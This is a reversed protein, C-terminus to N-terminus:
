VDYNYSTWDVSYYSTRKTVNNSGTGYRAELYCEGIYNSTHQAAIDSIMESLSYNPLTSFTHNGINSNAVMGGSSRNSTGNFTFATYTFNYTIHAGHVATGLASTVNYYYLDEDYKNSYMYEGHELETVNFYIYDTKGADERKNPSEVAGVTGTVCATGALIAASVVAKGFLGGVFAPAWLPALGTAAALVLGTVAFGVWMWKNREEVDIYSIASNAM